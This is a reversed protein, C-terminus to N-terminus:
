VLLEEETFSKPIYDYAGIRMAEVASEITGYATMVVVETLPSAEKARRLVEMGDPTGLRLDTFVLDFSEARLRDIARTGDEAEEVDHGASRLMMALTTRMNRQDDVVLVKAMSDGRAM